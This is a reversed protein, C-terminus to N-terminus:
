INWMEFLVEAVAIAGPITLVCLASTALVILASYSEDKNFLVAFSSVSMGIPCLVCILVVYSILHIESLFGFIKAFFAVLLFTIAPALICRLFCVWAIRGAYNNKREKFNQANKKMASSEECSITKLGNVSKKSFKRSSNAFLMGLLLMSMGVTMEGIYSIPKAIIVPLEFPACFLLLGIIVSVINPNAFVKFINIEGGFIKIGFTWLCINFVIVYGLLYFIANEGSGDSLNGFVGEILPIGIFACNTFVIGLRDISDLDKGYETKSRVFIFAVLTLCLHAAFSILIIVFLNQLLEIKFSLGNFRSIILAPNIFYLLTKSVFKQENEGFNFFISVGFGAAAILLMILLQQAVLLYM